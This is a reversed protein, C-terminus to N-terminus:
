VTPSSSLAHLFYMYLMHAYHTIHELTYIKCTTPIAPCPRPLQHWPRYSRYYSLIYYVTINISSVISYIHIFPSANLTNYAYMCIYMCIMVYVYLMYMYIKSARSVLETYTSRRTTPRTTNYSGTWRRSTQICTTYVTYIYVTYTNTYKYTCSYTYLVRIYTTYYYIHYCICMYLIYCICM